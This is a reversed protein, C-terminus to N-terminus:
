SIRGGDVERMGEEPLVEACGQKYVDVEVQWAYEM